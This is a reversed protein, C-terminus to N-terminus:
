SCKFLSKAFPRMSTKDREAAFANTWRTRQVPVNALPPLRVTHFASMHLYRLIPRCTGRLNDMGTPSDPGGDLVLNKPGWLLQDGFPMEIREATKLM